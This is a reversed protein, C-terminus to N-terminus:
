QQNEKTAGPVVAPCDTQTIEDVAAAQSAFAPALLDALVQREAADLEAFTGVADIADQVLQADAVGIAVVQSRFENGRACSELGAQVRDQERQASQRVLTIVAGTSLFLAVVAVVALLRLWRDSM